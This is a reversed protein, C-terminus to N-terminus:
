LGDIALLSQGESLPVHVLFLIGCLVYDPLESRWAAPRDGNVFARVGAEHM